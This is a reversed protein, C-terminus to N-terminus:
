RGAVNKLGEGCEASSLIHAHYITRIYKLYKETQSKVWSTGSEKLLQWMRNAWRLKARADSHPTLTVIDIPSVCKLVM